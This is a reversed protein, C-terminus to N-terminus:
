RKSTRAAEVLDRALQDARENASLAAAKAEEIERGVGRVGARLIRLM